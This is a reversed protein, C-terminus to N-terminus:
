PDEPPEITGIRVAMGWSPAHELDPVTELQQLMRQWANLHEIRAAITQTLDQAWTEPHGGKDVWGGVLSVVDHSIEAIPNPLGLYGTGNIAALVMSELTETALREREGLYRLDNMRKPDVTADAFYTLTVPHKGVVSVAPCTWAFRKIAVAQQGTRQFAYEHESWTGYRRLASGAPHPLVLEAM